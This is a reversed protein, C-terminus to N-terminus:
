YSLVHGQLQDLDLKMPSFRTLLLQLMKQLLQQLLHLHLSTRMLEHICKVQMLMGLSLWHEDELMYTIFVLM